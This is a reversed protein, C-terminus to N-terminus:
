TEEKDQIPTKDPLVNRRRYAVPSITHSPALFVLSRRVSDWLISALVHGRSQAQRCEAMASDIRSRSSLSVSSSSFGSSPSYKEGNDVSREDSIGLQCVGYIRTSRDGEHKELVELQIDGLAQAMVWSIWRTPM